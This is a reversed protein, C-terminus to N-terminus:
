TQRTYRSSTTQIIHTQLQRNDSDKNLPHSNDICDSIYGSNGDIICIIRAHQRAIVLLNQAYVYAPSIAM